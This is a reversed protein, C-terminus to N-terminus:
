SCLPNLRTRVLIDEDNKLSSHHSLHVVIVTEASRAQM